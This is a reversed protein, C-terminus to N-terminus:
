RIINLFSKFDDNPYYYVERPKQRLFITFKLMKFLSVM